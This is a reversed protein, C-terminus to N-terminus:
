RLFPLRRRPRPQPLTRHSRPEGPRALPAQLRPSERRPRGHGRRRRGPRSPAPLECLLPPLPTRRPPPLDFLHRHHNPNPNPASARRLRRPRAKLPPCHPRSAACNGAAPRPRRAATTVRADRQRWRQPGRTLPLSLSLARLPHGAPSSRKHAKARKKKRM